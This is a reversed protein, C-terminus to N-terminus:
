IQERFPLAHALEGTLPCRMLLLNSAVTSLTSPQQYDNKAKLAGAIMLGGAVLFLVDFIVLSLLVKDRM